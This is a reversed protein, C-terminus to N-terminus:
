FLQKLVSGTLVMALGTYDGPSDRPCQIKVTVCHLHFACDNLGALPSRKKRNGWRREQSSGLSGSPNPNSIM